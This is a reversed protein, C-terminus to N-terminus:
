SLRELLAEPLRMAVRGGSAALQEAFNELAAFPLGPQWSENMVTVGEPVAHGGGALRELYALAKGADWPTLASESTLEGRRELEEVARTLNADSLSLGEAHHKILTLTVQPGIKHFLRDLPSALVSFRLQKDRQALPTLAYLGLNTELLDRLREAVAEGRQPTILFTMEVNTGVFQAAAVRIRDASLPQRM